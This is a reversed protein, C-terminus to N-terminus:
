ERMERWLGALLFCFICPLIPTCPFIGDAATLRALNWGLVEQPPPFTHPPLPNRVRGAAKPTEWARTAAMMRFWRSIRSASAAPRSPSRAEGQGAPRLAPTLAKPHPGGQTSLSSSGLAGSRSEPLGPREQRPRELSAWAARPGLLLPTPPGSQCHQLSRLVKSGVWGQSGAGKGQEPCWPCHRMPWRERRTWGPVTRAGM